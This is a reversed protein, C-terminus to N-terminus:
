KVESIILPSIQGSLIQASIILAQLYEMKIPFNLRDLNKSRDINDKRAYIKKDIVLVVPGPIKHKKYLTLQIYPESYDNFKVSVNKIDDSSLIKKDPVVQGAADKLSEDITYVGAQGPALIELLLSKSIVEPVDLVLGRATHNLTHIIQMLSLRTKIRIEDKLSDTLLLYKKTNPVPQNITFPHNFKDLKVQWSVSSDTSIAYIYTPLYTRHDIALISIFQKKMLPDLHPLNPKFNYLYRDAESRLFEFQDRKLVREIQVLINSEEGRSHPEWNGDKKEYQTNYLAIIETALTEAPYRWISRVSEAQGVLCEGNFEAEVQPTRLRCEYSFSKQYSLKGIGEYVIKNFDPRTVPRLPHCATILPLLWFLKKILM